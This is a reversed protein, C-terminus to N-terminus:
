CRNSGIQVALLSDIILKKNFMSKTLKDCNMILKDRESSSTNIGKVFASKIKSIDDPEACFGLNNDRIIDAADGNIIALIPKKAAIYTQVKAPVTISFLPKNILSVILFDSAKLYKAIKERPKKGHFVINQNSCVSKLFTLHSGDGIINLQSKEQYEDPLLSFADVINELNQVKGINGAFTFHTKTEKSFRFEELNVNLDDSWNPCYHFPTNQKAYPKIVSEFGKGSVAFSSVNKYVFKVFGDLFFSFLRTKRFGYAYVSDPWVDQVWLTLPKKYLKRMIVAPVVGTLAGLSFGFVYDYKKGKFATFLTGYFMFSFYKLIKKIVSERYGTVTKVRYVPIGQYEDEQYFRNRYNNYIKGLPYTPVTTLVEVDYGQNKWALAVDNVKFEEPFFYESVILITGKSL